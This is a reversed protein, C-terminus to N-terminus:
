APVAVAEGAARRRAVYSRVGYVAAGTYLWGLVVDSVYHEAGYVLAFAMAVPYLALLPATWRTRTPWLTIAVLLAFAAHLSPVAAVANAYRYGGEVVSGAFRLGGAAWVNPLIRTVHAILGSEGAMWPPAAPYLAYTLLAAASLTAVIATFRRFRARDRRWLVAALVPTAFFHTLYVCALAADFWRAHGHWLHHQLWETPTTGGFLFRDIQLQPLYHPAFAHGASGRLADYAILLGFFPIWDRVVGQAFGRVDSLSFALLGLLLWVAIVDRQDPFGVVGVFAVTFAAFVAPGVIERRPRRRSHPLTSM